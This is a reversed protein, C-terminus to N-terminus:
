EYMHNDKYLYAEPAFRFFGLESGWVLIGSVLMLTFRRWTATVTFFVLIQRPLYRLKNKCDEANLELYYNQQFNLYNPPLDACYRWQIWKIELCVPVFDVPMWNLNNNSSKNLLTLFNSHDPAQWCPIRTKSTM